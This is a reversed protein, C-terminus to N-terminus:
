ILEPPVLHALGELHQFCNQFYGRNLVRYVSLCGEKSSFCTDVM